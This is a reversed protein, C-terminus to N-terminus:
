QNFERIGLLYVIVTKLAAEFDPDVPPYRLQLVFRICEVDVALSVVVSKSHYSLWHDNDKGIQWSQCISDKTEEPFLEGDKGELLATIREAIYERYGPYKEVRNKPVLFAIM